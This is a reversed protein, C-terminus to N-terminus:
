DVGKIEVSKIEKVITIKGDEYIVNYEESTPFGCRELIRQNFSLMAHTPTKTLKRQEIIPLKENKTIYRLYRYGIKTINNLICEKINTDELLEKMIEIDKDSLSPININTAPEILEMLIRVLSQAMEIDDTIYLDIHIIKKNYHGHMRNYLNKTSGVYKEAHINDKTHTIVYVGIRKPISSNYVDTIHSYLINIESM